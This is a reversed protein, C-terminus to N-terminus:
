GYNHFFWNMFLHNPDWHEKAAIFENLRPYAAQAQERTAYAAYPLYYTGGLSMALDIMQRTWTEVAAIEAPSTGHNIVMIAGFVDSDASYSLVSASSKPVWRIGVSMLNVDSDKVIKGVGAAFAAYQEVPVFYEQLADTDTSSRYDGPIRIDARMLNNRSILNENFNDGFQEQLDWKIVKGWEYSRSLDYILKRLGLYSMDQIEFLSSPPPPDTPPAKSFMVMSMDDMLHEDPVFCPRAYGYIVGPEDKATLFKETFEAASVNSVVQTLLLDDTLQLEIELVLGFLGYGGIVLGFLDANETLSVDLVRGDALLIRFSLVTDIFQGFRLDSEHVNVSLSGGVTFFPYAQKVCVSLGHPQAFRQIQDWTTGSQVRITKAAADFELIQNFDTIDLVVSNEFFTHGGQSHRKGAISVTQGALAAAAVVNCFDAETPAFASWPWRPQKYGVVEAVSTPNLRSFDNILTSGDPLTPTANYPLIAEPHALHAVQDSFFQDFQDTTVPIPLWPPALPALLPGAWVTADVRFFLVPDAVLPDVVIRLDVTPKNARLWGVAADFGVSFPDSTPFSSRYIHVTTTATQVKELFAAGPDDTIPPTVM